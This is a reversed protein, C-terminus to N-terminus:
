RPIFAMYCAIKAVLSISSLVNCYWTSYQRRNGGTRREVAAFYHPNCELKESNVSNLAIDLSQLV